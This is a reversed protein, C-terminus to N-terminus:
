WARFESICMNGPVGSFQATALGLGLDEPSAGALTLLPRGPDAMGLPRMVPGPHYSTRLGACCSDLPPLHASPGPPTPGLGAAGLLSSAQLLPHPQMQSTRAWVPGTPLAPHTGAAEACVCETGGVVLARCGAGPWPVAQGSGVSAEPRSLAPLSWTAVWAPCVTSERVTDEAM